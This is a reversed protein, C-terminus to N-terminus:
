PHCGCGYARARVKMDYALAERQTKEIAKAQDKYLELKSEQLVKSYSEQPRGAFEGVDPM